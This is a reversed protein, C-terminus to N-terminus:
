TTREAELAAVAAAVAEGFARVDKASITVGPRDPFTWWTGDEHQRWLRVLIRAPRDPGRAGQWTIRMEVGPGLPIAGALKHHVSPGPDHAPRPAPRPAPTAPEPELFFGMRPDAATAEASM